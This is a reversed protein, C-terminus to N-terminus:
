IREVKFGCNSCYYYGNYTIELEISACYPCEKIHRKRRRIKQSEGSSGIISKKNKVISKKLTDKNKKSYNNKGRKNKNKNGKKAIDKLKNRESESLLDMLRM